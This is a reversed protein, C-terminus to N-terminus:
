AALPRPDTRGRRAADSELIVLDVPSQAMVGRMGAGDHATSVRYGEGSLYEQALDRIEREDDVVLIHSNDIM